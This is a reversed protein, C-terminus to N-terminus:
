ANPTTQPEQGNYSQIFYVPRQKVEVFIRGLYAGQIGIALLQIGSFFSIFFILTTFGQAPDGFIVTKTLYFLGVLFALIAISAGAITAFRLPAVSFSTFGEIALKFLTWYNWSSHGVKRDQRDFRICCKKYGIYCFMGKTYRGQERMQRLALVCRRDLLRFDGVNPLVNVDSLQQLMRYYLLTTQKRFWSEKGRSIRQAYVDDYGEEWKRLMEPILSPPDQLDADMIVTADGTVYDLGALMAVEKGYNRSLDVYCCRQDIRHLEELRELTQDTSGDNIFLWEWEYVTEEQTIKQLEAYLLPISQEENYCPILISIKKMKKM